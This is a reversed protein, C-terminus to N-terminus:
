GDGDDGQEREDPAIAECDPPVDEPPLPDPAACLVKLREAWLVGDEDMEGEARIESGPTPLGDEIREAHALQITLAGGQPNPVTLSGEDADHLYVTGRDLKAESGDVELRFDGSGGPGRNCERCRLDDDFDGGDGDVDLFDPVRDGDHDDDVCASPYFDEVRVRLDDDDSWDPAPSCYVATDTFFCTSLASEAQGAPEGTSGGGEGEDGGAGDVSAACGAVVLALAPLWARLLPAPSDPSM